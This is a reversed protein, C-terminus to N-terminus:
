VYCDFSSLLAPLDTMHIFHFILLLVTDSFVRLLFHTLLDVENMVCLNLM